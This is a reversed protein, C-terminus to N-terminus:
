ECETVSKVEIRSKRRVFDELKVRAEPETFGPIVITIVGTCRDVGGKTRYCVQFRYEFKKPQKEVEQNKKRFLNFM